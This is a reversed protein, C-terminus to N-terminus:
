VSHCRIEWTVPLAVVASTSTDAYGPGSYKLAIFRAPSRSDSNEGSDASIVAALWGSWGSVMSGTFPSFAVHLVNM